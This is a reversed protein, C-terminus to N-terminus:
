GSIAERGILSRRLGACAREVMALVADFGDADDYYPDPVDFERAAMAQADYNRLLVISARADDPDDAMAALQTLRSLHGSDLVVVLDREDFDAVTFQKAVHLPPWYGAKVLANRARNDMDDGAHWDGTGASDVIFQEALGAESLMAVLVVEATPSRCINGSCVFCVRFPQDVM